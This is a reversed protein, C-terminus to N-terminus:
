GLGTAKSNRERELKLIYRQVASLAPARLDLFMCGLKRQERGNSLTQDLSNRVQLKVPLPGSGPLDIRCNEYVRGITNDLVKKEDILAIGGCSIDKVPLIVTTATGEPDDPPITITCRLPNVVPTAVRYTERRQLRILSEPIPFYLAPLNDFVCEHVETAFFLIRINDLLTEFSVNDSELIRQNATNNPARDIVVIGNNEDVGLITTVVAEAGAGAQMSVLQNRTKVTRLLAVIERRSHVQYDSLDGLGYKENFGM